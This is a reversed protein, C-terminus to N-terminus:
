CRRRARRGFREPVPAHQHDGAPESVRGARSEAWAVSYGPMDYELHIIVFDMGGASFLEFNDKNQRDIPDTFGFLNQGLYGGYWPYGDFRSVPFTLDYNTAVGASNM